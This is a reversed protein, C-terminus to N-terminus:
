PLTHLISFPFEFGKKGSTSVSTSSSGSSAWATPVLTPREMMLCSSQILFIDPMSSFCVWTQGVGVGTPLTVSGWDIFSIQHEHRRNTSAHQFTPFILFSTCTYSTSSYFIVNIIWPPPVMGVVIPVLKPAIWALFPKCAAFHSFNALTFFYMCM